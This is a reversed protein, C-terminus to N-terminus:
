KGFLWDRVGGLTPEHSAAFTIFAYFGVLIAFSMLHAFVHHRYGSNAQITGKLKGLEETVRTNFAWTVMEVRREQLREETAKFILEESENQLKELRAEDYIFCFSKVEPESPLRGHLAECQKIWRRKEAQYLGYAVLGILDDEDGVLRDYIDSHIYRNSAAESKSPPGLLVPPSEDQHGSDEPSPGNM